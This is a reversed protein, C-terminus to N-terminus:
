PEIEVLHPLADVPDGGTDGGTLLLYRAADVLECGALLLHRAL